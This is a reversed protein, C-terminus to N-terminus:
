YTVSIPVGAKAFVKANQSEPTEYKKGSIFDEGFYNWILELDQELGQVYKGYVEFVMKKSGHGM